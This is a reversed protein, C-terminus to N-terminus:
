LCKIIRDRSQIPREAVIIHKVPRLPRRDPIAYEIALDNTIFSFGPSAACAAITVCVAEGDRSGPLWSFIFHLNKYAIDPM